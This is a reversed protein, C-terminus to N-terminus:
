HGERPGPPRPLQQTIRGHRLAAQGGAEGGRPRKPQRSPDDDSPSVGSPAAGVDEGRGLRRRIGRRQWEGGDVEGGPPSRQASATRRRAWRGRKARPRDDASPSRPALQRPPSGGAVTGSAAFTGSQHGRGDGGQGRLHAILARRNGFETASSAAGHVGASGELRPPRGGPQQSPGSRGFNDEGATSPAPRRVEHPATTGMPPGQSAAGRARGADYAWMREAEIAHVSAVVIRGTTMNFVGWLGPGYPHERGPARRAMIDRMAAVLAAESTGELRPDRDGPRGPALMWPDLPGRGAAEASAAASAAAAAMMVAPEDQGDPRRREQLRRKKNLAGRGSDPPRGVQHQDLSGGHGFVDEESDEHAAHAPPPEAAGGAGVSTPPGQGAPAERPRDDASNGAETLIGAGGGMQISMWGGGDGVTSAHTIYVASRPADAGEQARRRWPHLGKEIRRLAQLGASTPPLCPKALKSGRRAMWGGCKSCFTFPVTGQARCPRHGLSRLQREDARVGTCQEYERAAPVKAGRCWTCCVRCRWAGEDHRWQHLRIGDARRGEALLNERRRLM